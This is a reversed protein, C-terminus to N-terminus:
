LDTRYVVSGILRSTNTFQTDSIQEIGDSTRGSIACSITGPSVYCSHVVTSAVFANAYGLAGGFNMGGINSSMFPLNPISAAGVSTGKAALAVDFWAACGGAWKLYAGDRTSSYTLGVALGGFAINPTWLGEEYDDFVNPNASPNSITPFNLHGHDLSLVSASGALGFSVNGGFPNIAFSSAVGNNASQMENSDMMLNVGAKDGIRFSVATDAASTIDSSDRVNFESGDTTFAGNDDITLTRMFGGPSQLIISNVAQNDDKRLLFERQLVVIMQSAWAKASAPMDHPVTPFMVM